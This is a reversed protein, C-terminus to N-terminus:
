REPRTKFSAGLPANRQGEAVDGTTGPPGSVAHPSAGRAPPSPLEGRSTKSCLACPRGGSTLAVDCTPCPRLPYAPSM